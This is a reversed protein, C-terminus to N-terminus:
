NGYLAIVQSIDSELAINLEKAEKERSIIQAM